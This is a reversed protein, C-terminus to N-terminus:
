GDTCIQALCNRCIFKLNRVHVLNEVSECVECRPFYKTGVIRAGDIKFEVYDQTTLELAARIEDSLKIRYHSQLKIISNNESPM